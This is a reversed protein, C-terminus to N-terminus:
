RELSRAMRQLVTRTKQLADRQFETLNNKRDSLLLDIPQLASKLDRYFSSRISELLAKQRKEAERTALVSGNLAQFLRANVLAISTYDAVAELLTQENKDFPRAEKRVVLLIGIVEKRVKVPVACVSRGLSAVRFRSLPEGEISLTEGSLAVLKSVGDDLHKNIRGAWADPLGRQAFLLYERSKEDRVLLWATNADSVQLAGDVIRQFLASQNTVSNVARGVQILVSLDRGKRQLDQHLVNIESDLRRRDQRDHVRNLVREVASLVEADRAPWFLYDAAGLRFAQIIDHEQGKNATVLVPTNIGQSALAVIM